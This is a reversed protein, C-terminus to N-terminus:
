VSTSRAAFATSMAKQLEQEEAAGAAEMAPSLAAASAAVKAAAAAKHRLGFSPRKGFHAITTSAASALWTPEIEETEPALAAAELSSRRSRSAESALPSWALMGSATVHFNGAPSDECGDSLPLADVASGAPPWTSAVGGRGRWPGLAGFSARSTVAHQRAAHVTFARATLLPGPTRATPPSLPPPSLLPLSAALGPLQEIALAALRKEVQALQSRLRAAVRRAEEAGAKEAAVLQKLAELQQGSGTPASTVLTRLQGLADEQLDEARRLAADRELAKARADDIAAMLQKELAAVQRELAAVRERPYDATDFAGPLSEISLFRAVERPVDTVDLSALLARLYSQLQATRQSLAAQTHFLLKPPLVLGLESSVATHLAKFDSYRRHTTYQRSGLTTTILYECYRGNKTAIPGEVFLRFHVPTGLSSSSRCLMVMVEHTRAHTRAHTTCDVACSSPEPVALRKTSGARASLVSVLKFLSPFGCGLGCVRKRTTGTSFRYYQVTAPRRGGNGPEGADGETYRYSATRSRRERDPM